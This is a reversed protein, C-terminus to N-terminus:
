QDEKRIEAILDFEVTPKWGLLRANISNIVLMIPEKLREQWYAEKFNRSIKDGQMSRPLVPLGDTFNEKHKDSSFRSYLTFENQSTESMNCRQSSMSFYVHEAGAKIMKQALAATFAPEYGVNSLYVAKSVPYKEGYDAISRWHLDVPTERASKQLSGYEARTKIISGVTQLYDDEDENVTRTRRTRIFNPDPHTIIKEDVEPFNILTDFFVIAQQSLSSRLKEYLPVDIWNGRGGPRSLRFFKQYDEFSLTRLGALKLENYLIGPLSIDCVEVHKAGKFLFLQTFDGGGAITLVDEKAVKAKDALVQIADSTNLYFANRHMEALKDEVHPDAASPDPDWLEDAKEFDAHLRRYLEAKAGALEVSLGDAFFKRGVAERSKEGFVIEGGGRGLAERNMLLISLILVEM